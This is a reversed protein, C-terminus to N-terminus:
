FGDNSGDHSACFFRVSLNSNSLLVKERGRPNNQKRRTHTCPQISCCPEVQSHFLVWSVRVPSPSLSFSDLGFDVDNWSTHKSLLHPIERITEKPDGADLVLQFRACLLPPPPPPPSFAVHIIGTRDIYTCLKAAVATM